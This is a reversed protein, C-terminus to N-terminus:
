REAPGVALPFPRSWEVASARGPNETLIRDVLREGLAPELGPRLRRLLYPLGPGGNVSRAAATTTDGGPLLRHGFGADALARLADPRRRDTSHHARSPGDFAPYAGSGAAQRHAVFDPSRNLHGLVVRHAPVGSEGCLLDLM